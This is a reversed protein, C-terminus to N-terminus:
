QTGEHRDNHRHGWYQYVTSETLGLLKSIEGRSRGRRRLVSARARKSWQRGMKRPLVGSKQAQHRIYYVSRECVGESRAIDKVKKGAKLLMIVRARKEDPIAAGRGRKKGRVPRFVGTFLAAIANKVTSFMTM